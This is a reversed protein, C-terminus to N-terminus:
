VHAPEPLLNPCVAGVLTREADSAIRLAAQIVADHMHQPLLTALVFAERPTLANVIDEWGFEILRHSLCRMRWVLCDMHVMHLNAFLPLLHAMNLRHM